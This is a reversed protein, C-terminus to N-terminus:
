SPRKTTFIQNDYEMDHIAFYKNHITLYYAYKARTLRRYKRQARELSHLVKRDEDTLEELNYLKSFGYNSIERVKPYIPLKQGKFWRVHTPANRPPITKM